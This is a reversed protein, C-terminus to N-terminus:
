YAPLLFGMQFFLFVGFFVLVVFFVGVDNGNLSFSFLPSFIQQSRVAGLQRSYMEKHGSCHGLALLLSRTNIICLHFPPVPGFLFSACHNLLSTNLLSILIQIKLSTSTYFWTAQNKTLNEQLAKLRLEELILNSAFQNSISDHCM